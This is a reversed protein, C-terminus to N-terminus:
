PNSPIVLWFRDLGVRQPACPPNNHLTPPQGWFSDRITLRNHQRYGEVRLVLLLPRHTGAEQQKRRRVLRTLKVAVQCRRTEQVDGHEV